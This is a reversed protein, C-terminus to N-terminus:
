IVYGYFSCITIRMIRAYKSISKSKSFSELKLSKSEFHKNNSVNLTKSLSVSKKSEKLEEQFRNLIKVRFPKMELKSYIEILKELIQEYKKEIAVKETPSISLHMGLIGCMANIEHINDPVSTELVKGLSNTHASLPKINSKEKKIPIPLLRSPYRKLPKLKFKLGRKIRIKRTSKTKRTLKLRPRQRKMGKTERLGMINDM